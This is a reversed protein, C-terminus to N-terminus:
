LIFFLAASMIGMCFACGWGFGVSFGRRYISQERASHEPLFDPFRRTELIM